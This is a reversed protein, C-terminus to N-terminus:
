LKCSESAPNSCLCSRGASILLFSIKEMRQTKLGWYLKPVYYTSM